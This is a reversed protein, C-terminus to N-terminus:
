LTSTNLQGSKDEAIIEIPTHDGLHFTESDSLQVFGVSFASGGKWRRSHLPKQPEFCFYRVEAFRFSGCFM